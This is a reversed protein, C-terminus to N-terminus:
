WPCRLYTFAHPESEFYHRVDHTVNVIHTIGLAHLVDKAAALRKDGIYVGAVVATPSSTDTPIPSSM